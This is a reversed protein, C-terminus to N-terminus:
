STQYVVGGGPVQATAAATWKCVLYGHGGGRYESSYQHGGGRKSKLAPHICHTISCTLDATPCLQVTQHAVRGPVQAAAAATCKCVLYGHGVRVGGGGTKAATNM